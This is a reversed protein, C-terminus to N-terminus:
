PFDAQPVISLKSYLLEKALYYTVSPLSSFLKKKTILSVKFESFM